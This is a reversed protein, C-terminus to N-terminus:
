YNIYSSSGGKPLNRYPPPTPLEHDGRFQWGRSNEAALIKLYIVHVINSLFIHVEQNCLLHQLPFQHQLDLPNQQPFLPLALLNPLPNLVQFQHTGVEQLRHDQQNQLAAELLPLDQQNLHVAVLPLHDQLSLLAAVLLHLVPLNLLVELRLLAQNQLVAELLPLLHNLDESQHHPLNQLQFLLHQYLHQLLHQKVQSHQLKGM